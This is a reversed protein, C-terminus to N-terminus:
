AVSADGDVIVICGIKNEGLLRAIELLRTDPPATLVDRGKLKLIAAVNMSTDERWLEAFKKQPPM